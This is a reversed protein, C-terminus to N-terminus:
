WHHYLELPVCSSSFSMVQLFFFFRNGPSSFPLLWKAQGPAQYTLILLLLLPRSPGDFSTIYDQVRCKSSSVWCAASSGPHVEPLTFTLPGGRSPSHFPVQGNIAGNITIACRFHLFSFPLDPLPSTYSARYTFRPWFCFHDVWTWTPANLARVLCM